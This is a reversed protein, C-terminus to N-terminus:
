HTEYGYPTQLGRIGELFGVGPVDGKDVSDNFARVRQGVGVILSPWSRLM